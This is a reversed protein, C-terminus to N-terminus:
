LPSRMMTALRYSCRMSSSADARVDLSHPGFSSASGFCNGFCGGTAIQKDVRALQAVCADCQLEYSFASSTRSPPTRQHACARRPRHLLQLSYSLSPIPQVHVRIILHTIPTRLTFAPDTNSHCPQLKM